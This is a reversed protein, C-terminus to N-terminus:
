VEQMRAQLIAKPSEYMGMIHGQREKHREYMGESGFFWQAFNVGFVVWKITKIAVIM